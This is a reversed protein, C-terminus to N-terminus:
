DTYGLYSYLRSLFDTEKYDNLDSFNMIPQSNVTTLIKKSYEVVEDDTMNSKSVDLEKQTHMNCDYIEIKDVNSASIENFASPVSSFGLGAYAFRFVESENAEIEWYSYGPQANVLFDAYIKMVWEHKESYNNDLVLLIQADSKVDYLYFNLVNKGLTFYFRVSGEYTTHFMSYSASSSYFTKEEVEGEFAFKAELVFSKIFDQQGKFDIELGDYDKYEVSATSVAGDDTEADSLFGMDKCVKNIIVGAESVTMPTENKLNYYKYTFFGGVGCGLLLIVIAFTLLMKKIGKGM